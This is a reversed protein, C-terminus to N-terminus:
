FTILKRQKGKKWVADLTSNLIETSNLSTGSADKGGAVVLRWNGQLDRMKGCAMLKREANLMPGKEVKVIKEGSFAIKWTNKATTGNQKGGVILIQSDNVKILCHFSIVFPLTPGKDAGYKLSIFETSNLDFFGDDGGILYICDSNPVEM